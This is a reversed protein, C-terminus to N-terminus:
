DAQKITILDILSNRNILPGEQLYNCRITPLSLIYNNFSCTKNYTLDLDPNAFPINEYWFLLKHINEYGFGLKHIYKMGIDLNSYKQPPGLLPFYHYIKHDNPIRLLLKIYKIAM